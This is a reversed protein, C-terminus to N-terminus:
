ISITFFSFHLATVKSCTFRPGTSPRINIENAIWKAFYRIYDRVGSRVLSVTSFQLVDTIPISSKSAKLTHHYRRKLKNWVKLERFHETLKILKYTAVLRLLFIILEEFTGVTSSTGMDHM